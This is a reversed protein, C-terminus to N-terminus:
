ETPYIKIEIRRNRARGKATKNSAVPTWEGRGAAEIWAPDLKKQKVFYLFVSNARATSLEMNNRYKSSSIPVNDTHGEVKVLQKNYLKLIDAVRSLIEKANSKVEAQGSDFLIAGKLSIQVYQYNTDMNVNVIDIINKETAKAVVKEYLAETKQKQKEKIRQELEQKSMDQHNQGTGQQENMDTENNGSKEFENFYESISVMQDTGSSVFISDDTTAGGGDFINVSSSLSTILAEYKDADVTSMSFLLVFFCLLLNMLDAFTNMWSAGGGSKEEVKRRAM